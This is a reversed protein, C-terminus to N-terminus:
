FVVVTFAQNAAAGTTNRIDVFISSADGSRQVCGIQGIAGFVAGTGLSCSWPRSSIDTGLPTFDVEYSGTLGLILQTEAASPDCRYCSAVTGDANIRAWAKVVGNGGFQNVVNGNSGELQISSWRNTGNDLALYGSYGTSGLYAGGNGYLWVNTAGTGSEILLEGGEGVNVSNGSGLTLTGLSADMTMVPETSLATFDPDIVLLDTNENIEASGGQGIRVIGAGATQGTAEFMLAAPNVTTRIALRGGANNSGLTIDPSIDVSKVNFNKIDASTIANNAIDISEVCGNCVVDDATVALAGASGGGLAVGAAGLMALGWRNSRKM